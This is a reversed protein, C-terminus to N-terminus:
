PKKTEAKVKSEHDQIKAELGAITADREARVEDTELKVWSWYAFQYTFVALLLVKAIPRTFQKYFQSQLHPVYADWTLMGNTCTQPPRAVSEDLANSLEHVIPFPTPISAGHRQTAQDCLEAVSSACSVLGRAARRACGPLVADEFVNTCSSRILEAPNLTPTNSSDPADSHENALTCLEFATREWTQGWM